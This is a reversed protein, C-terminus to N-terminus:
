PKHVIVEVGRASLADELDGALFRRAEEQQKLLADFHCLTLGRVFVHAQEGPCLEDIPRMEKQIMALEGTLPMTRFVEHAQEANDMFHAHDARRLIVM